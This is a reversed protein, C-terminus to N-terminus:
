YASNHLNFLFVLYLNDPFQPQWAAIFHFCRISCTTMFIFKKLWNSLTRITQKVQSAKSIFDYDDHVASKQIAYRRNSRISALRNAELSHLLQKESSVTATRSMVSIDMGDMWQNIEPLKAWILFVLFVSCLFM